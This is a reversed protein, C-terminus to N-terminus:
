MVLAAAGMFGAKNGLSASVVDVYPYFGNNDIYENLKKKIPLVLAAGENSIGGGLVFAQPHLINTLGIIGYTVYDVYKAIVGKAVADGERAATFASKGSIGDKCVQALLSDPYKVVAARTQEILAATSVFSEWCGKNGCACKEGDVQIGMHGAEAGACGLGEFLKGDIIIGSGIGTGLTIFVLNKYNRGSGFRQEGLAACNADNCVKCVKGTLNTVDNALDVGMWNLNSCSMVLGARSNVIGPVGIGIGILEEFDFGAENCLSKVNEILELLIADYGRERETKYEMSSVIKGFDDVIGMKVNKGGIDVGAYYM